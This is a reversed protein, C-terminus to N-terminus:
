VRLVCACRLGGCDVDVAGGIEETVVLPKVLLELENSKKKKPQQM